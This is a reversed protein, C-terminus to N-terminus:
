SVSMTPPQFNILAARQEFDAARAAEEQRQAPVVRAHLRNRENQIPDGEPLFRARTKKRDRQAQKTTRETSGAYTHESTFFARPM